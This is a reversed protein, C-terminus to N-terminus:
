PNTVKINLLITADDSMIWSSGGVDFDRRNITFSGNFIGENNKEVYTFPFSLQKTKGKMYLTGTLLFGTKTHEIKTSKFRITPYKEVYFYEEKRLHNDRAGTGTAISKADISVDFSSKGLDNEDFIITGQLGSFSGDVKLGANKIVFTVLNGTAIKKTQAFLSSGSAMFSILLLLIYKKMFYLDFTCTSENSLTCNKYSIM